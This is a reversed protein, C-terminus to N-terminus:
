RAAELLLEATKAPELVMLDHGCAIERYTWEGGRKAIEGHLPYGMMTTLPATVLVYTKPVGAHGGNSFRVPEMWTRLPHPRMRAELWAVDVPDSVGVMAAPPAPLWAGDPSLGRFATRRREADEASLGPIQSALDEGDAPVAADLYVLRRLRPKLRDAVATIVMGGYSHGVLVIDRLDNEEIARVVDEIHTALSPPEAVQGDLGTLTPALVRHGAAELTPRVRDWCWGGHWAGHVLVFTSKMATESASISPAAALASAGILLDRRDIM